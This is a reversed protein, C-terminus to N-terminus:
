VTDRRELKLTEAEALELEFQLASRRNLATLWLGPAIDDPSAPILYEILSENNEYAELAAYYREWVAVTKRFKSESARKRKNSARYGSFTLEGGLRKCVDNFNLNEMRAVFDVVDGHAGCGFCHFTGDSYVKFSGTKENHFPCRAYGRSNVDVGYQKVTDRLSHAARIYEIDYKM